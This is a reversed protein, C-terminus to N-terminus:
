LIRIGAADGREPIFQVAADRRNGADGADREGVATRRVVDVVEVVEIELVRRRRGPLRLRDRRPHGHAGIVEAHEAQREDLSPQEVLAVRLRRIEHRDDDIARPRAPEKRM